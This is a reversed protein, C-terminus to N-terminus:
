TTAPLEAVDLPARASSIALGVTVATALTILELLTASHGVVCLVLLAALAILRDRPVYGILAFKFLANGAVYLAPGGLIVAATDTTSTMRPDAIALDIAVATVIVGAVMVAHGYAYGSRGVRAPDMASAIRRAAAEAARAFYTMWLSVILLFGVVFASVIAADLGERESFTAGAALISEGLAILLVLQCREALHAGSLTWDTLPTSGYGPLWFGHLPAGLDIALAVIWVAIRWDGHM